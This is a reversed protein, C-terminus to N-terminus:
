WILCHTYRTKLSFMIIAVNSFLPLSFTCKYIDFKTCMFTVPIVKDTLEFDFSQFAMYNLLKPLVFDIPISTIYSNRKVGPLSISLATKIIHTKTCDPINDHSEVTFVSQCQQSHQIKAEHWSHDTWREENTHCTKDTGLSRIYLLKKWWM